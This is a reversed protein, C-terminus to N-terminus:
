SERAIKDAWREQEKLRVQDKKTVSITKPPALTLKTEDGGRARSVQSVLQRTLQHQYVVLEALQNVQHKIM